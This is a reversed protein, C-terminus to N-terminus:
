QLMVPEVAVGIRGNDVKVPMREVRNNDRNVFVVDAQAVGVLAAQLAELSDTRTKGVGLIVDGARMNANKAGGGDFVETIQLGYERGAIEAPITAVPAAVYSPGWRASPPVNWAGFPQFWISPGQGWAPGYWGQNWGWPQNWGGPQNWGWNQNWGRNWNGQSQPNVNPRVQQPQVNPPRGPNQGKGRPQAEALTFNSLALAAAASM